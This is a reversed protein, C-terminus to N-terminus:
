NREGKQRRNPKTAKCEKRSSGKVPQAKKENKGGKKTSLKKNKRKISVPEQGKGKKQLPKPPPAGLTM